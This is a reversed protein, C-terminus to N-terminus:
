AGHVERAALVRGEPEARARVAGRLPVIAAISSDASPPPPTASPPHPPSRTSVLDVLHWHLVNLKNMAMAELLREISPVSLFHRATDMLVERHVFRPADDIRLPAATVRYAQADFDFVVLQALTELGRFVGLQTVAALTIDGDLPVVLSYSENAGLQLEADADSVAILLRRLGGGASSNARATRHSFTTAAFRDTARKLRAVAEAPTAPPSAVTVALDPSVAVSQAGFAHRAPEPWVPSVSLAAVGPILLVALLLLEM